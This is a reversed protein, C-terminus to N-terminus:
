GKTKKFTEQHPSGPDKEPSLVAITKNKARKRGGNGRV